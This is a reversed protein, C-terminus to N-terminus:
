PCFFNKAMEGLIMKEEGAMILPESTQGFSSSQELTIAVL